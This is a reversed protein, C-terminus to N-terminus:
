LTALVDLGDVVSFWLGSRTVIRVRPKRLGRM